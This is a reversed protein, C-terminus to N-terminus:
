GITIVDAAIAFDDYNGVLKVITDDTGDAVIYTNGDVWNIFDVTSALDALAANAAASFSGFTLATTTYDNVSAGAPVLASLDITDGTALNSITTMKTSATVAGTFDAETGIIVNDVDEDAGVDVSVGLAGVNVTDAGTGSEVTGSSGITIMDDGSGTKITLGDYITNFGSVGIADPAGATITLDGTATSGDITTLKAAVDASATTAAANVAVDGLTFDNAGTINITTLSNDLLTLSTLENTDVDNEASSDINVTELGTSTFGAQTTSGDGNFNISASDSTGSSDALAATVTNADVAASTIDLVISNGSLNTVEVDGALAATLALSQFNSTTFLAADFNRTEGALDLVEFNKYNAANGVEMLQSAITDIGDGGDLIVTGVGASGNNLLSDDGAGLNISAKNTLAAANTLTIIDGGSGGTLAVDKNGAELTVGGSNGSLDITTADDFSSGHESIEISGTGTVTLKKLTGWASGGGIEVFNAGIAEVNAATILDTGGAIDIHADLASGTEGANSFVLFQEYDTTGLAGAQYEVEVGSTKDINNLQSIVVGNAVNQVYTWDLSRSSAIKNVGDWLSADVNNGQSITRIHVNEVSLLEVLPATGTDEVVTLEFTDNNGAGGNVVDGTQATSNNTTGDDDIVGKFTDNRTTGTLNDISTTLIFTEGVNGGVGLGELYAIAEAETDPGTATVGALIAQLDDVSEASNERSYIGAVLIKNKFLAAVDAFAAAPSGLLYLGAEIVVDGIDAGANLRDTFFQEAQADPSAPDTNGPALGFNNLLVSVQNSVTVNGKLIDQQFQPTSVLFDALDEFSTGAEIANSLERLYNAGPAANFLGVVLGVIYEKQTDSIAM